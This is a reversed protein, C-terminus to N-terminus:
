SALPELLPLAKAHDGGPIPLWFNGASKRKLPSSKARSLGGSGAPEMGGKYETAVPAEGFPHIPFVFSGMLVGILQIGWPSYATAKIGGYGRSPLIEGLALRM